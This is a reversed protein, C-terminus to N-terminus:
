GFSINEICLFSKFGRDLVKCYEISRVDPQVKQMSIYAMLLVSFSLPFPPKGDDVSGTALQPQLMLIYRSGCEFVCVCVCVCVRVLHRPRELATSKEKERERERSGFTQEETGAWSLLEAEATYVSLSPFLNKQRSGTFTKWPFHTYQIKLQIKLKGKVAPDSSRVCENIQGFQRKYTDVARDLYACGSSFVQKTILFRM